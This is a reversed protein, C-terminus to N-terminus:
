DRSRILLLRGSDFTINVSSKLFENSITRGDGLKLNYNHLKYRAGIISLNSVIDCYAHLSFSEGESGEITIPKDILEVTNHEDKIYAKVGKLNCKLLMGLNGLLHDVRSGTVGLLVIEDAKLELARDIVIETDTANKAKPYKEVTCNKKEFFELVNRDISDFDGILYEPIINYKYLCNGGGDACILISKGDLEGKILEKSPAHGGSVIVAKM